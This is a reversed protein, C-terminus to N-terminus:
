ADAELAEASFVLGGVAEHDGFLANAAVTAEDFNETVVVRASTTLGRRQDDVDFANVM